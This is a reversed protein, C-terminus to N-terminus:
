PNATRLPREEWKMPHRRVRKQAQSSLVLGVAFIFANRTGFDATTGVLLSMVFTPMFTSKTAAMMAIDPPFTLRPRRFITQLIFSIYLVFGVVGVNSAMAVASNSARTGGLGVGLGYTSILAQWSVATWMSREDFSATTTKTLVVSDVLDYAPKMVSPALVALVLFGLISVLFINLEAALGRRMFAKEPGATFRFVWEIVALAFFVVLGVYAASSTSLITLVILCAILVPILRSRLNSSVLARRFFYILSLFGVCPSGYASAEPMLGVVRKGSTLEADTLLAYGATRFPELIPSINIFQSAFDLGGTLVVLSAGFCIAKIAHLRNESSRLIFSFSFVSLVSITMYALQSINQTSPQLGAVPSFPDFNLPVVKVGTFLRPMVITSFVAALWFLVLLGLKRISLATKAFYAPASPNLLVKVLLLLAAMPAPTLTLGGALAPPITAFAGFALGGFFLYLLAYSKLFLARIAILWFLIVPIIEM